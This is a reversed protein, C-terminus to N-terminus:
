RCMAAIVFLVALGAHVLAAALLSVQSVRYTWGASRRNLGYALAAAVLGILPLWFLLLSLVAAVRGWSLDGQVTERAVAL